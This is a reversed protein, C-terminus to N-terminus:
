MWITRHPVGGVTFLAGFVRLARGGPGTFVADLQPDLLVEAIEGRQYRTQMEDYLAVITPNTAGLRLYADYYGFVRNVPLVMLVLCVAAVAPGWVTSRRQLAQVAGALPLAM